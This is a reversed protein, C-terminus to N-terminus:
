LYKTLTFKPAKYFLDKVIFDVTFYLIKTKETKRFYKLDITTIYFRINKLVSPKVYEIM